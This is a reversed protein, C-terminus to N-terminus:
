DAYFTGLSMSYMYYYFLDALDNWNKIWTGDKLRNFSVPVLFWINNQKSGFFCIKQVGLDHMDMGQGGVSHVDLIHVDKIWMSEDHVSMDCVGMTHMCM